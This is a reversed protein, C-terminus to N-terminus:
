VYKVDTSNMGSDPEFFTQEQKIQHPSMQSQLPSTLGETMIIGNTQTIPYRSGVGSLLHPSTPATRPSAMSYDTSHTSAGSGSRDRASTKSSIAYGGGHNYDAASFAPFYGPHTASSRPTYYSSNHTYHCNQYTMTTPLSMSMGSPTSISLSAPHQSLFGDQILHGRPFGQHEFTTMIADRNQIGLPQRRHDDSISSVSLLLQLLEVPLVL